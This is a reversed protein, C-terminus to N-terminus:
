NLQKSRQEVRCQAPLQRDAPPLGVKIKVINFYINTKVKIQNKYMHTTHVKKCNVIHRMSVKYVYPWGSYVDRIQAENDM